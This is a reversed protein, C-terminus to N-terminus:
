KVPKFVMLVDKSILETVYNQCYWGKNLMYEIMHSWYNGTFDDYPIVTFALGDKFSVSHKPRFFNFM